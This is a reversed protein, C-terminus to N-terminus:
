ILIKKLLAKVKILQTGTKENHLLLILLIYIYVESMKLLGKVKIVQATTTFM